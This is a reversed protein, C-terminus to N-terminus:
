VGVRKTKEDDQILTDYVESYEKIEALIEQNKKSAGEIDERSFTSFGIDKSRNRTNAVPIDDSSEDDYSLVDDSPDYM